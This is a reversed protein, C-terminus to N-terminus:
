GVILSNGPANKKKFKGNGYSGEHCYNDSCQCGWEMLGEWPGIYNGECNKEAFVAMMNSMSFSSIVGWDGTDVPNVLNYCHNMSIGLEGVLEGSCDNGHYLNYVFYERNGALERDHKEANELLGISENGSKVARVVDERLLNLISAPKLQDPLKGNLTAGNEFIATAVTYLTFLVTISQM